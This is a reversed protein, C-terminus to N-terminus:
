PLHGYIQKLEAEYESKHSLIKTSEASLVVNQKQLKQLEDYTEKILKYKPKLESYSQGSKKLQDIESIEKKIKDSLQKDLFLFTTYKIEVFLKFTNLKNCLKIYDEQHEQHEPFKKFHPIEKASNFYDILGDLQNPLARILQIIIDVSPKKLFEIMLLIKAKMFDKTPQFEPISPFIKDILEDHVSTFFTILENQMGLQEYIQKLEAEYESKHSLIYKSEASLVVNRLQLKELEDYTEKILEYKPKLESYSQGSKKLQKIESIEKKIKDSLQKDLSLFNTYKTEVFLKFENLKECLEIYYEQHEMPFKKFYTTKKVRNFWDILGDLQNPVASILQIIIDVSPKKLFEIVLLIKAKMFPNINEREPPPLIVDIFIDHALTFFPLLENQRPEKQQEKSAYFIIKKVRFIIQEWCENYIKRLKTDPIFSSMNLLVNKVKDPYRFNSYEVMLLSNIFLLEEETKKNELKDLLGKTIKIMHQIYENASVDSIKDVIPSLQSLYARIQEKHLEINGGLQEQLDLYKRKYKLYKEKWISM